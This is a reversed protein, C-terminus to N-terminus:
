SATKNSGAEERLDPATSSGAEAPATRKTSGAEESRTRKRSRRIGDEQERDMREM